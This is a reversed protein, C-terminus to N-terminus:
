NFTSIIPLHDSLNSGFILDHEATQCNTLSELLNASTYMHDLQHIIKGGKPNRFTPILSNNYFRLSEKLGLCELREIIELNGHPGGPWLYDFTESSNFDGGIIWNPNQKNIQENLYANLIETAWMRKNLNLKIGSIDVGEYHTVPIAWAPSYVSIVNIIQSEPKILQIHIINGKFFDLEQHIFANTSVLPIEHKISYKTLVATGFIQKKGSESIANRFVVNYSILIRSPIRLVEQLLIIDANYEEIIQWVKSDEKAKRINWTIVKM